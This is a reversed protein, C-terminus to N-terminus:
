WAGYLRYAALIAEQRTIKDKSRFIGNKTEMLPKDNEFSQQALCFTVATYYPGFLICNIEDDMAKTGDYRDFLAGTQSLETCLHWEWPQSSAIQDVLGRSMSNLDQYVDRQTVPDVTEHTGISLDASADLKTWIHACYLWYATKERTLQENTARKAAKSLAAAVSGNEQVCVNSLLTLLERETVPASFSTQMEKPVVGLTLAQRVEKGPLLAVLLGAVLLLAIVASLLWLRRMRQRPRITQKQQASQGSSALAADHLQLATPLELLTDASVGFLLCIQRLKGVDPQARGSEWKYVSQRSIHLKQALEEQTLGNAKRLNLLKDKMDFNSEM